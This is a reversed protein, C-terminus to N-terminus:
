KKDGIYHINEEPIENNGHSVHCINCQSIWGENIWERNDSFIEIDHVTHLTKNDCKDCFKNEIRHNLARCKRGCQIDCNCGLPKKVM